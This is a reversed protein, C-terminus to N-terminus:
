VKPDKSDQSEVLTLNDKQKAKKISTISKRQRSFSPTLSKAM